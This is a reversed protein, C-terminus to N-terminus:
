LCHDANRVSKETRGGFVLGLLEANRQRYAFMDQDITAPMPILTGVAPEGVPIVAVQVCPQMSCPATDLRPPYLGLLVLLGLYRQEPKRDGLEPCLSAAPIVHAADLGQCRGPPQVRLIHSAM